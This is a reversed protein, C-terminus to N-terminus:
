TDELIPPHSLHHISTHESDGKREEEDEIALKGVDAGTKPVNVELGVAPSDVAAGAAVVAAGAAAVSAGAAAVSAGATAVDVGTATVAAGVATGV